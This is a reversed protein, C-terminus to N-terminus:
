IDVTRSTKIINNTRSARSTHTQRKLLQVDHDQTANRQRHLADLMPDWHRLDVAQVEHPTPSASGAVARCQVELEHRRERRGPARDM